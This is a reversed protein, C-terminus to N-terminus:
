CYHESLTRQSRTIVDLGHEIGCLERSNVGDQKIRQSEYKLYTSMIQDEVKTYLVDMEIENNARSSASLSGYGMPAQSDGPFSNVLIYPMMHQHYLYMLRLHISGMNRAFCILKGNIM